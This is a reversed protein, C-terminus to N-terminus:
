GSTFHGAAIGMKFRSLLRNEPLCAQVEAVFFVIQGAADGNVALANWVHYIRCKGCLFCYRAVHM